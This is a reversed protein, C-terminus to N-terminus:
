KELRPPNMGRLTTGDKLGGSTPPLEVFMSAHQQYGQGAIVSLVQIWRLNALTRVWVKKVM